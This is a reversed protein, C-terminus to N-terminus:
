QWHLPGSPRAPSQDRERRPRFDCGHHPFDPVPCMPHVLACLDRKRCCRGPADPPRNSLLREAIARASISLESIARNLGDVSPLDKPVAQAVCVPSAWEWNNWETVPGRPM